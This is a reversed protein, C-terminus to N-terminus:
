DELEQQMMVMPWDTSNAYHGQSFEIKWFELDSIEVPKSKPTGSKVRVDLICDGDTLSPLPTLKVMEIGEGIETLKRLAIVTSRFHILSRMGNNEHALRILEGAHVASISETTYTGSAMSFPQTTIYLM